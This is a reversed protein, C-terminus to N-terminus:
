LTPLCSWDACSDFDVPHRSRCVSSPCAATVGPNPSAGPNAPLDLPAGFVIAIVVIFAVVILAVAKEREILNPRYPVYGDRAVGNEPDSPVIVGGALRVRWFHWTM